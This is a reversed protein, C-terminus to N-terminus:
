RGAEDGSDRSAASRYDEHEPPDSGEHDRFWSVLALVLLLTAGGGITLIGWPSRELVTDLKGLVNAVAVMLFGLLLGTLILGLLMFSEALVVRRRDGEDTGQSRLQRDLRRLGMIRYLTVLGVLSGLFLSAQWLQSGTSELAAEVGVLPLWQLQSHSGIAPAQPLIVILAIYWFAVSNYGALQIAWYVAGFLIVGLALERSAYDPFQESLNGAWGPQDVGEVSLFAWLVYASLLLLATLLLSEVAILKM